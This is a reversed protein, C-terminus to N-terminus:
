TTLRGANLPHADGAGTTSIRQREGGPQGPEVGVFGVGQSLGAGHDDVVPELSPGGLNSQPHNLRQSFKPQRGLYNAHNHVGGAWVTHFGGSTIGAIGRQCPAIDIYDQKAVGHVVLGFGDEKTEGASRTGAGQSAHWRIPHRGVISTTDLKDWKPLVPADDLPTTGKKPKAASGRLLGAGVPIQL